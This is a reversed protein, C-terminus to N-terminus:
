SRTPAFRQLLENDVTVVTDKRRENLISRMLQGARDAMLRARLDERQDALESEDALDVSIVKAVVVGGAGADVPIWSRAPPLPFCRRTSRRSSLRPHGGAGRPSPRTSRHGLHRAEEALTAGDEGARWRDAFVRAEAVALEVARERRLAQEVQARVDEFPAVGAPRITDLQWVIWGRPVPYPGHIVGIESAFAETPWNPARPHARSQRAQPSHRVRTSLWRRM